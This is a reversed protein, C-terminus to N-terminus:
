RSKRAAAVAKDRTAHIELLSFIGSIKLVESVRETPEAMLLRTKAARAAKAALIIVRLGASSVYTVARLDLVLAPVEPVRKLVVATVEEATSGDLRGDISLVAVDHDTDETIAM